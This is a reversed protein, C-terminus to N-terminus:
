SFMWTLASLLGVWILFCIVVFRYVARWTRLWPLGTEETGNAGGPVAPKM